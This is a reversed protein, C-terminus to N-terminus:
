LGFPVTLFEYNFVGCCRVNDIRDFRWGSEAPRNESTGADKSSPNCAGCAPWGHSSAQRSRLAPGRARYSARSPKPLVRILFWALSILGLVAFPWRWKRREAPRELPTGTKPCVRLATKM